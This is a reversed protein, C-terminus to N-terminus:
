AKGAAEVRIVWEATRLLEERASWDARAWWRTLLQLAKKASESCSEVASLGQLEAILRERHRLIAEVRLRQSPERKVASNNLLAKSVKPM